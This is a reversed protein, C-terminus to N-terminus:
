ETQSAVLDERGISAFLERFTKFLENVPVVNRGMEVETQCTILRPCKLLEPLDNKWDVTGQGPLNHADRNEYNDHLHCTVIYPSLKELSNDCLNRAIGTAEYITPVKGPKTKLRNAHGIDFCCGLWPSDFYQLVPLLADANGTNDYNNECAIVIKNAEAIPLLRELMEIACRSSDEVPTGFYIHDFAGMHVTYTRCGAEAAYSIGLKQSEYLYETGSRFKAGVGMGFTPGCLGHADTFHVGQERATNMLDYFFRPEQLIRELWCEAFVLATGGHSRYEAFVNALLKDPLIGWTYHWSFQVKATPDSM